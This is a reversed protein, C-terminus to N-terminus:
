SNMGDMGHLANMANMMKIYDDIFIIFTQLFIKFDKQLKTITRFFCHWNKNTDM